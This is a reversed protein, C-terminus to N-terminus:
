GFDPECHAWYTELSIRCAGWFAYNPCIIGVSIIRDATPFALYLCISSGRDPFYHIFGLHLAQLTVSIQAVVLSKFSAPTITGVVDRIQGTCSPQIM